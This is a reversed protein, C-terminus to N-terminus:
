PTLDRRPYRIIAAATFALAIASMWLLSALNADPLTVLPTHAFPTTTVLWAPLNARGGFEAFFVGILVLTWITAPAHRPLLAFLLCALGIYVGAAPLQALVAMLVSSIVESWSAGWSLYVIAAGVWSTAIVILASLGAVTIQSTMWRGPSVPTGRVTETNGSIEERRARLIALVGAIAAAEAVFLMTYGLLLDYIPGDEGVTTRITAAIAPDDQAADSGLLALAAAFAGVALGTALMLLRTGRQLRLALRLPTRLSATGHARGPRQPILSAGFQRTGEVRFTVAVVAATVILLAALAGVHVQGFPNMVETLSLPSFWAILHPAAQLTVPDVASVADAIARVTYSLAVIGFGAAIAARGTSLMQGCLVGIAGFSIGILALALGAWASGAAQAGGLVFGGFLGVALVVQAVAGAVLNAALGSVHSTAAARLLETAGADEEARGHRVAFLVGFVAFMVAFVMGMQFFLFAGPEPGQPMGRSILFAPNDIVLRLASVRESHSSYTTATSVASVLAAVFVGATWIAIQWRDRRLAAVVLIRLAMM